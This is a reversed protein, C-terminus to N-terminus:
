KWAKESAAYFSPLVDDCYPCILLGNSGQKPCRPYAQTDGIRTLNTVKSPTPASVFRKVDLHSGIDTATPANTVVLSPAPAIKSSDTTPLQSASLSGGRQQSTRSGAVSSGAPRRSEGLQNVDRLLGTDTHISTKRTKRSATVFDIRHRRLVVAHVLRKQIPTLRSYDSVRQIKQESSLEKAEDDPFARLIISTLHNRFEQFMADDLAADVKEFRYKNGAKRIALSISGLQDLTTTIYSMYESMVTDATPADASPPPLSGPNSSENSISDWSAPSCISSLSDADDETPVELPEEDGPEGEELEFQQWDAM